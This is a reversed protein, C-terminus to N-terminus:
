AEYTVFKHEDNSSMPHKRVRLKEILGKGRVSIARELIVAREKVSRVVKAEVRPSKLPVIIFLFSLCSALWLLWYRDSIFKEERVQSFRSFRGPNGLFIRALANPFYQVLAM